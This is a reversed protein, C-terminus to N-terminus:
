IHILSLSRCARVRDTPQRLEPRMDLRDIRSEFVRQVDRRTQPEDARPRQPVRQRGILLCLRIGVKRGLRSQSRLVAREVHLAQVQPAARQARQHALEHLAEIQEDCGAYGHRGEVRQWGPM